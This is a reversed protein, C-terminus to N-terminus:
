SFFCQFVKGWLVEYWINTTGSGWYQYVCALCCCLAYLKGYTSTQVVFLPLLSRLSPWRQPKCGPKSVAQSHLGFHVPVLLTGSISFYLLAQAHGWKSSNSELLWYVFIYAGPLPTWATSLPSCSWPLLAFAWRRPRRDVLRRNRPLPAAKGEGLGEFWAWDPM